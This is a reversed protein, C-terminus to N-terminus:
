RRTPATTRRSRSPDAVVETNTGSEAGTETEAADEPQAADCGSLGLVLALAFLVISVFPRTRM